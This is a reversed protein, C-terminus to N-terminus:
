FILEIPEFVLPTQDATFLGDRQGIPPGEWDPPLAWNARQGNLTLYDTSLGEGTARVSTTGAALKRLVLSTLGSPVPEAHYYTGHVVRVRDVKVTTGKRRTSTRRTTPM